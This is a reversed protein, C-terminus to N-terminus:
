AAGATADNKTDPRLSLLKTTGLPGGLVEEISRLGFVEVMLLLSQLEPVNKGIEWYRIANWRVGLKNALTQRSWGKETRLERTRAGITM